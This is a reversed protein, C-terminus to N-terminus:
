VKKLYWEITKQLGEKLTYGPKWGLIKQAKVSSLYQREIEYKAKNLVKYDLRGYRLSLRSIKKLLELVTIPSQISFNFAEGGLRLTELKEALM